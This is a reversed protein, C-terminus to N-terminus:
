PAGKRARAVSQNEGNKGCPHFFLPSEEIFVSCCLCKSKIQKEKAPAEPMPKYCALPVRQLCFTLCLPFLNERFCSVKVYGNKVYCDLGRRVIACVVFMELFLGLYGTTFFFHRRVCLICNLSCTNGGFLCGLLVTLFSVHDAFVPLGSPFLFLVYIQDRLDKLCIPFGICFFRVGHMNYSSYISVRDFFLYCVHCMSQTKGSPHDLFLLTLLLVINVTKIARTTFLFNRGGPLCPLVFVIKIQITKVM